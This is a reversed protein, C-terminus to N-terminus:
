AAPFWDAGSCERHLKATILDALEPMSRGGQHDAWFAVSRDERVVMCSLHFDDDPSQCRDRFRLLTHGDESVMWAENHHVVQDVFGLGYIRLATAVGERLGALFQARTRFGNSWSRRAIVANAYLADGTVEPGVDLFPPLELDDRLEPVEVELLNIEQSPFEDFEWTLGGWQFVGRYKLIPVCAPDMHEHLKTFEDKTIPRENEENSGPGILRKTTHRYDHRGSQGGTPRYWRYRLRATVGPEPARLYVQTINSFTPRSGPPFDGMQPLSNLLFKHETETAM